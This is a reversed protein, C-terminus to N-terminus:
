RTNALVTLHALRTRRSNNSPLRLWLADAPSVIDPNITADLTATAIPIDLSDWRRTATTGHEIFATRANREREASLFRFLVIPPETLRSLMTAYRDIKNVLRDLNETGTDHELFFLCDLTTGNGAPERWHGYGDPLAETGFRDACMATSWWAVLQGGHHRAAQHLATFFGNTAVRHALQTSRWATIPDAPRYGLRTRTTDRRDAVIDAGLLGLIWHYPAPGDGHNTYPQFCRVLQLARLRQLRRQTRRPGCGWLQTIQPTTLVRHDALLDLLTHDRDTLARVLETRDLVRHPERPGRRRSRALVAGTATPDAHGPTLEIPEGM